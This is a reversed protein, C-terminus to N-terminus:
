CNFCYRYHMISSAFTTFSFHQLQFLSWDQQCAISIWSAASANADFKLGFETGPKIWINFIERPGYDSM